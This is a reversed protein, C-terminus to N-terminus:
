GSSRRSHLSRRRPTVASGKRNWTGALVLAGAPAATYDGGAYTNEKGDLEFRYRWAKFSNPKVELYLGKDDTREYPREKVPATGCKTDTRM